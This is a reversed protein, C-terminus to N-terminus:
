KILEWYKTENNWVKDFKQQMVFALLLTEVSNFAVYYKTETKRCVYRLIDWGQGEKELMDILQDQRPLWITEDTYFCVGDISKGILENDGEIFFSKDEKLDKLNQIEQAKACMEIYEKSTDM